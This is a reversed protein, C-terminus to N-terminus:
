KLEEIKTKAGNFAAEILAFDNIFINIWPNIKNVTKGIIFQTKFIAKQVM